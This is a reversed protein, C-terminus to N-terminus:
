HDCSGPLVCEFFRCLDNDIVKKVSGGESVLIEVSDSGVKIAAPNSLSKTKKSAKMWCFFRLTSKLLTFAYSISSTSTSATMLFLWGTVVVCVMAVKLALSLSEQQTCFVSSDTQVFACIGRKGSVFDVNNSYKLIIIFYKSYNWTGNQEELGSGKPPVVASKVGLGKGEEVNIQWSSDSHVTCQLNLHVHHIFKYNDKWKVVHTM